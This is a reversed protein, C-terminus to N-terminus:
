LSDFSTFLRCIPSCNCPIRPECLNSDITWSLAAELILLLPAGALIGSMLSSAATTALMLCETYLTVRYFLNSYLLVFPTPPRQFPFMTRMRSLSDQVSCSTSSADSPTEPSSSRASSANSPPWDPTPNLPSMEMEVTQRSPTASEYFVDSRHPESATHLGSVLFSKKARLLPSPQRLQLTM